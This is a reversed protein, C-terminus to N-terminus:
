DNGDKKFLELRILQNEGFYKEYYLITSKEEKNNGGGVNNFKNLLLAEQLSDILPEKSEIAFHRLLLNEKELEENNLDSEILFLEIEQSKKNKIKKINVIINDNSYKEKLHKEIVTSRFVKTLEYGHNEITKEYEFFASVSMIKAYHVPRTNSLIRDIQSDSSKALISGIFLSYNEFFFNARFFDLLFNNRKDDMKLKIFLEQIKM